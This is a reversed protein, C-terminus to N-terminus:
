LFVGTFLTFLYNWRILSAIVWMHIQFLSLILFTYPAGAFSYISFGFSFHAFPKFLHKVFSSMYIALPCSLIIKSMPLWSFTFEFWWSIVHHNVSNSSPHTFNLHSTIGLISSVMFCWSSESVAPQCIFENLWRPFYNTM